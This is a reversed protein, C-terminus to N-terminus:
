EKRRERREVLRWRTRLAGFPDCPDRRAVPVSTEPKPRPLENAFRQPFIRRRDTRHHEAKMKREFFPVELLRFFERQPELLSSRPMGEDMGEFRDELHVVRDKKGRRSKLTARKVATEASCEMGDTKLFFTDIMEELRELSPDIIRVHAEQQGVDIDGLPPGCRCSLDEVGEQGLM